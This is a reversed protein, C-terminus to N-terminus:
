KEVWSIQTAVTNSNVGSKVVILYQTNERLIIDSDTRVGSTVQVIPNGGGGSFAGGSYAFIQEGNSGANPSHLVQLAARVDSNRDVNFTRDSQGQERNSGEYIQVTIVGSGVVNIHLSCRLKSAPAVLKYERAAGRDLFLYESMMFSSTSAVGPDPPSVQGLATVYMGVVLLVVLFKSLKSM